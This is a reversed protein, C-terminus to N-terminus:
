TYWNYQTYCIMSTIEWLSSNCNEYVTVKMLLKILFPLSDEHQGGKQSKEGKGKEEVEVGGAEQMEGDSEQNTVHNM